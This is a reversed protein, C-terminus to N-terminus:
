RPFDQNNDDRLTCRAGGCMMGSVPTSDTNYIIVAGAGFQQVHWAKDAFACAGRQVFVLTSSTISTPDNTLPSCGTVPTAFVVNFGSTVSEIVQPAFDHPDATQGLALRPQDLETGESSVLTPFGLVVDESACTRLAIPTTPTTTTLVMPTVTFNPACAACYRADRHLTASAEYTGEGTWFADIQPITEGDIGTFSQRTSNYLMVALFSGVEDVLYFGFEKPHTEFTGKTYVIKITDGRRVEFAATAYWGGTVFHKGFGPYLPQGTMLVDVFNGNWGDSAVDSLHLKWVSSCECLLSGAGDTDYVDRVSGDGDNCDYGGDQADGLGDNDGDRCTPLSVMAEYYRGGRLKMFKTGDLLTADLVPSRSTTVHAFNVPTATLDNGYM